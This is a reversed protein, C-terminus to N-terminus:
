QCSGAEELFGRAMAGALASASCPKSYLYGQGFHCQMDRLLDHQERQEIGEAVVSLELTRAMNVMASAITRDSSDRELEQVFSRDIKLKQIPLQRITAINSCGTGFDDVAIEIGAEGATRLLDMVGERGLTLQSETLELEVRRPDIGNGELTDLLQRAGGRGIQLPSFNLAARVPVGDRAADLEELDRGVAEILWDGLEQILGAQEALEIFVPPPVSGGEERHWRALAEMGIIRGDGLAVQPQWAVHLDGQRIAARLEEVLTVRESFRRHEEPSHFRYTGKGADKAMYMAADAAMMLSDASTGDRPALSVGISARVYLVRGDAELPEHFLEQIKEVVRAADNEDAVDPLLLVFEDGGIRAVVDAERLGARFREAAAVLLADGTSHGLTDNIDKFGDFDVYLLAFTHGRQVRGLAKEVHELLLQRNPLGTLIDHYALHRLRERVRAHYSADSFVGVYYQVAGEEGRIADIHLWEPYVEGDKRRNWLEGEWSGRRRLQEWMEQYFSQGQCGSHLLAPTQGEAEEGTYGTTATFAPNVRLIRARSDTVMIGESTADFVATAIRSGALEEELREILTERERRQTREREVLSAFLAGRSILGVLGGGEDVVPLHGGPSAELRPIIESIPARPMVPEPESGPGALLDIFIRGPFLAATQPEVMGHFCGDSGVVAFAAPGPLANWGTVVDRYRSFPDVAVWDDGLVDVALLEETM